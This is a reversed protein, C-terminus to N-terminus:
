LRVNLQYQCHAQWGLVACCLLIHFVKIQAGLDKLHAVGGHEELEELDHRLGEPLAASSGADLAQLCPQPIMRQM